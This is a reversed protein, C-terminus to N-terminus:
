DCGKRAAPEFHDRQADGQRTFRGHPTKGYLRSGPCYYLATQLDIWVKIDPNGGYAPAPPTKLGLSLLWGDVTSLVQASDRSLSVSAAAVGMVLIASLVAYKKWPRAARRRRPYNFSSTLERALAQITEHERESLAAMSDKGAGARVYNKLVQEAFRATFFTRGQQLADVAAVVDNAANAKLVFGRAGAEFAQRLVPQADSETLILVHQSPLNEVVRRTAALGGAEPLGIDLLVIDPTLIRAKEVVEQGDGTEGCIEWGPRSALIAIVVRRVTPDGVAVLIRLPPM